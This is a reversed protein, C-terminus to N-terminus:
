EAAEAYDQWLTRRARAGLSRAKLYPGLSGELAARLLSPRRVYHADVRPLGYIDVRPTVLDLKTTWASDYAREVAARAAPSPRAGYPYAYTRVRTALERELLAKADVLERELLAPDESLLPTHAM